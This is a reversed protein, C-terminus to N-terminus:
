IEDSYGRLYEVAESFTEICVLKMKSRGNLSNYAELADNYNGKACLFISINDDLATPIKERIGGITGVTGNSNITGTGAIKLGHTLDFPVLRNYISLTQLLGGSPGGVNEYNIKISPNITKYNIDFRDAIVVSDIDKNWKIDMEKNNRIIHVIDNDNMNKLSTYLEDRSENTIDNHGIIKDGIKFSSGENYWTVDFSNFTYDININSNVKKAEEYACIISLEISSFYDIRAASYEESDSLNSYKKSPEYKEISSDISAILNQFITSKSISIVYITSFSGSESYGDIVEVVSDFKATDGKLIINYKTRVTCIIIIPIYIILLFLLHFKYRKFLYKM